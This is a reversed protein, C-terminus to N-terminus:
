IMSSYMLFPHIVVEDITVTAATKPAELYSMQGQTVVTKCPLNSSSKRHWRSQRLGYRGRQPHKNTDCALDQRTAPFRLKFHISSGPLGDAASRTRSVKSSCSGTCLLRSVSTPTRTSRGRFVSPPRMISIRIRTMGARM